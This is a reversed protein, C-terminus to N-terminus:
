VVIDKKPKIFKPQNNIENQEQQKKSTDKILNDLAKELISNRLKKKFSTEKDTNFKKDFINNSSIRFCEGVVGQFSKFDTSCADTYNTVFPMLKIRSGTKHGKFKGDKKLYVDELSNAGERLLEIRSM